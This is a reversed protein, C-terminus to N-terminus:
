VPNGSPMGIKVSGNHQLPKLSGLHLSLFEGRNSDFILKLSNCSKQGIDRIAVFFGLMIREAAPLWGIGQALPGFAV